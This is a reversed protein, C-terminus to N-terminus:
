DLQIDSDLPPFYELRYRLDRNREGIKRAPNGAVLTFPEVSKTVVAGAGVVSGEGLSVGPLILARAGVWVRDGLTVPGPVARFDPDQPDHSLTYIACEPSLSCDSGIRLAVRGDLRCRRNLVTREGIEILRGGFFCGMQVSAGRGLRVRLVQRLYAHRLRYSPLWTIAYNYLFYACAAQRRRGRSSVGGQPVRSNM